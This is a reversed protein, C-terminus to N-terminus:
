KKVMSKKILGMSKKLEKIKTEYNNIDIQLVNIKVLRELAKQTEYKLQMEALQKEADAVAQKSLQKPEEMPKGGEIFECDYERVFDVGLYHNYDSLHECLDFAEKDYLNKNDEEPIDNFKVGVGYPVESTSPCKRPRNDLEHNFSNIIEINEPEWEKLLITVNGITTDFSIVDSNIQIITHIINNTYKIKFKMGVKPVPLVLELSQEGYKASINELDFIDEKQPTGKWNTHTYYNIKFIKGIQEQYISGDSMTGQRSEKIVKVHDGKQFKM